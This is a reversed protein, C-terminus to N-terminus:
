KKSQERLREMQILFKQHNQASRKPILKLIVKKLYFFSYFNFIQRQYNFGVLTISSEQKIIEIHIYKGKYDQIEGDTITWVSEDSQIKEYLQGSVLPAEGKIQIHLSSSEIKVTLEKKTIKFPIPVYVQVETLTQTWIYKDTKGGNGIPAKEDDEKKEGEKQELKQVIEQPVEQKEEQIKEAPPAQVDKKGFQEEDRKQQEAEREKKRQEEKEKKLQEKREKEKSDKQFQEFNKKCSETIVREAEQQNVFFDTRRRLFGYVADFFNDITKLQQLSTMFIGDYKEEENAMKHIKKQYYFIISKFVSFYIIIFKKDYVYQHYIKQQSNKQLISQILM